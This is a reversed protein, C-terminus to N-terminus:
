GAPDFSSRRSRHRAGTSSVPRPVAFHGTL